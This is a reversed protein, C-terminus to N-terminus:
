ITDVSPSQIFNFLIAEYTEAINKFSSSSCPKMTESQAIEKSEFSHNQNCAVTYCIVPVQHPEYVSLFEPLPSLVFPCLPSYAAITKRKVLVFKQNYQNGINSIHGENGRNYHHIIM